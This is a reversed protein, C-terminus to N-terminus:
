EEAASNLSTKGGGPRKRARQLAVKVTGPTTGLLEAIRAQGFGAQGLEVIIEAQTGMTRRLQMVQLRVLEDLLDHEKTTV